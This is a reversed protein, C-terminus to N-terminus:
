RTKALRPLVGKSRLHDIKRCCQKPSKTGLLKSFYVMSPKSDGTQMYDVLKRIEEETWNSSYAKSNPSEMRKALASQPVDFEKAALKVTTQGTAIRNALDNYDMGRLIAQYRPHAAICSSLRFHCNRRKSLNLQTRIKDIIEVVPYKGAYEDILRNIESLEDASIPEQVQKPSLYGKLASRVNGQTLTPSFYRAVENYTLGQARLAAAREYDAETWKFKGQLIGHIRICDEMTVWMFNSVARYNVPTPAPYHAEIFGTMRDAMDQSFSDSDYHWRAKGLDYQCLELCERLGLGVAQSVQSWDVASNSECQRQVESAVLSQSDATAQIHKRSHNLVAFRCKCAIASRGLAKGAQEWKAATNMASGDVMKLLTEDDAAAWRSGSLTDDQQRTSGCIVQVYKGLSKAAKTKEKYAWHSRAGLLKATEKPKVGSGILRQFQHTEDVTWASHDGVNGLRIWCYEARRPLVGLAKGIRDWDEGYEAVLERLRTRQDVRLCGATLEFVYQRTFSNIDSLSRTPLESKIISVLETISTSQVHRNILGKMLERESDTWEAAIRDSTRGEQKARFWYWRSRLHNFKPYQLFHQHIDKWSLKSERFECIRRYVVENIPANFTGQGVRQCELADVNMYAGALRWDVTAGDTYNNAIFQKLRAMDTKSWGGYSEILSRPQITSSSTDFLELCKILPLNLESAVAEWNCRDLTNDFHREVARTVLVSQQQRQHADVEAQDYISQLVDISLCYKSALRYWPISENVQRLLRVEDVIAKQIDASPGALAHGPEDIKEQMAAMFPERQEYDVAAYDFNPCALALLLMVTALESYNPKRQYMTNWCRFRKGMPAYAARVYEPLGAMSVGPPLEGLDPARTTLDSLLPLSKVLTLAEWLLLSTDPLSLIQICGHGKLASLALNCDESYKALDPIVRVSAGPAISLVFQMYETATAFIDPVRRLPMRIKLCKLKSHSTPTFVRYKKFVSVTEPFLRMELYELTSYNGRFAIDDGFPYPSLLSLRLLRPFPVIDKFVAKPLAATDYFSRLMLTQLCPYELFGGGDPDKLLGTVDTNGIDIDLFQLTQTSRRILPTVDNCDTDLSCDMYVLDGIAELDFYKVLPNSGCTIVTHKEVIGFLQQVLDLIHVNRSKLLNEVEDFPTVDIESIMPAMQKVRQVFATINDATDPPCVYRTKPRDDNNSNPELEDDRLDDGEPEWNYCGEIDITLNINLKFVLPFSCGEYTAGSLLQLAKGSYVSEIDLDFRLEKALLHTPYGLEKCSAPWSYLRAEVSDQDNKLTLRHVQCFRQYVFARFNNCVWLLPMQLTKYEDSYTTVGDIRLRSCGAVHDVILKVVHHPLIQFASLNDM